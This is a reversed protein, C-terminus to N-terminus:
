QGARAGRDRFAALVSLLINGCLIPAVLFSLSGLLVRRHWWGLCILSLEAGRGAGGAKGACQLAVRIQARSPADGPHTSSFHRCTLTSLLSERQSSVQSYGLFQEAVSGPRLEASPEAGDHPQGAGLM